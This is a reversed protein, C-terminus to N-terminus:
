KQGEKKLIVLILPEVVSTDEPSLKRACGLAVLKPLVKRMRYLCCYLFPNLLSVNLAQLLKVVVNQVEVRLLELVLAENVSILVPDSDVESRMRVHPLMSLKTFLVLHLNEAAYVRARAVIKSVGGQSTYVFTMVESSDLNVHPFKEIFIILLLDVQVLGVLM